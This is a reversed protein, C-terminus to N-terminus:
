KSRGEGLLDGVRDGEANYAVNNTGFNSYLKCEDAKVRIESNGFILYFQDYNVAKQRNSCYYSKRNTMSIIM